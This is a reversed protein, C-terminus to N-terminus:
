TTRVTNEDGGVVIAYRQVFPFRWLKLRVLANRWLRLEISEDVSLARFYPTSRFNFTLVWQGIASNSHGGGIFAHRYVFVCVWVGCIVCPSEFSLWSCISLIWKRGGTGIIKAEWWLAVDTWVDPLMLVYDFGQSSHVMQWKVISPKPGHKSTRTRSMTRTAAWWLPIDKFSICRTTNLGPMLDCPWLQLLELTNVTLMVFAITFQCMECRQGNFHVSLDCLFYESDLHLTAIAQELSLTEVHVFVCTLPVCIVWVESRRESFISVSGREHQQLRWGCRCAQEFLLYFLLVWGFGSHVVM